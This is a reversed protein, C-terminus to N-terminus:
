SSTVEGWSAAAVTSSKCIDIKNTTSNYIIQGVQGAMTDRITETVVPLVLSIPNLIENTTGM